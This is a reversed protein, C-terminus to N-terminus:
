ESGHVVVGLRGALRGALTEFRATSGGAVLLAGVANFVLDNVIDATGYQALLAEGGLVASLGGSAFELIEWGVGVALVFLVVFAARFRRDFDVSRSHREVARAVAYGGVAVLSASLSHALSDYWGFATYLGAAGAGHFASALTLWVVLGADMTYGYERRLLAPLLTLGLPVASNLLLTVNGAVAAWAAIAALFFQLGRVALVHRRDADLRDRDSRDGNPDRRSAAARSLRGIRDSHEVYLDFVVGALVGAGTAAVLDWMLETRGTVFATGFLVDAAFVVVTWAGALAMTAVVVFVAAFRPTMSLSTFADLVVVVLLTLAAMALFTTVGPFLGAARVVFPLAALALLEGPVTVTPDGALAPVLTAVGAALLALAAWDPEGLRVLAVAAAPLAATVAWAVGADVRRNVLLSRLSTM